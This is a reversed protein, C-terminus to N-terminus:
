SIAGVSSTVDDNERQSGREHYRVVRGVVVDGVSLEPNWCVTGPRGSRYIAADWKSNATEGNLHAWRGAKQFIRSKRIRGTDSM